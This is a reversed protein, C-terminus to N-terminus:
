FLDVGFRKPSTSGEKSIGVRLSLGNVTMGCSGHFQIRSEDITLLSKLANLSIDSSVKERFEELSNESCRGEIVIRYVEEPERWNKVLEEYSDIKSHLKGSLDYAYFEEDPGHRLQCVVGTDRHVIKM